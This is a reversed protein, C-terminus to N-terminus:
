YISLVDQFCQRINVTKQRDHKLPLKQGVLVDTYLQADKFIQMWQKFRKPKKSTAVGVFENNIKCFKIRVDKVNTWMTHTAFGVHKRKNTLGDTWPCTFM